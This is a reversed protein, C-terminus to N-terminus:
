KRRVEIGATLLGKIFGEWARNAGYYGRGSFNEGSSAVIRGNRRVRWRGRGSRDKYLEVIMKPSVRRM